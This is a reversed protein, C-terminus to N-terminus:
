ILPLRTGLMRTLINYGKLRLKLANVDHVHLTDQINWPAMKLSVPLALGEVDPTRKERRHAFVPHRESVDIQGRARMNEVKGGMSGNEEEEDKLGPLDICALENFLLNIITGM